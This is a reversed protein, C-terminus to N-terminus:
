KNYERACLIVSYTQYGIFQNPTTLDPLDFSIDNEDNEFINIDFAPALQSCEETLEEVKTYYGMMTKDGYCNCLFLHQKVKEAWEEIMKDATIIQWKSISFLVLVLSLFHFNKMKSKSDRQLFPEKSLASEFYVIWNQSFM